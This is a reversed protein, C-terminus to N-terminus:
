QAFSGAQALQGSLIEYDKGERAGARLPHQTASYARDLDVFRYPLHPDRHPPIGLRRTRVIQAPRYGVDVLALVPSPLM